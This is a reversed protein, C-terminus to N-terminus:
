TALEGSPSPEPANSTNALSLEVADNGDSHLLDRALGRTRERVLLKFPRPNPQTQRAHEVLDGLRPQTRQGVGDRDHRVVVTATRDITCRAIGFNSDGWLM